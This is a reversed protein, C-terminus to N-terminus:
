RSKGLRANMRLRAAARKRRMKRRDRDIAQKVGDEIYDILIRETVSGKKIRAGNNRAITVIDRADEAPSSHLLDIWAQIDDLEEHNNM